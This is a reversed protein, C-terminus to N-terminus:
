NPWVYVTQLMVQARGDQVANRATVRFATCQGLVDQHQIQSVCETKRSMVEIFYQTSVSLNGSGLTPGAVWPAAPSAGAEWRPVCGPLPRACIGRTTDCTPAKASCNASAYAADYDAQSRDAPVQDAAVLTAVAAEGERLAAEAAQFALNRDQTAAAMKEEQVITRVGTLGLLTMALLLVLAMILVAGRQAHRTPNLYIPTM